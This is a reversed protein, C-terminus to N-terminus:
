GFLTDNPFAELAREWTIGRNKEKAALNGAGDGQDKWYLVQSGHKFGEDQEVYRSRDKRNILRYFDDDSFPPQTIMERTRWCENGGTEVDADAWADAQNLFMDDHHLAPTTPGTTVSSINSVPPTVSALKTAHALSTFLVFSSFFNEIM